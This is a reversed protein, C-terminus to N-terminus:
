AAQADLVEDVYSYRHTHGAAEQTRTARTIEHWHGNVEDTRGGTVHGEDDLEVTYTHVHDAGDEETKGTVEAPIDIEITGPRSQAMGELSVGNIEGSKVLAWAEPDPIHIGAVWADEVFDPDGARAIFSEVVVHAYEDENRDHYMDVDNTFANAMFGYAARRITEATMFDGETDLFGPVYVEVWVVQLEDDAKRIPHEFPDDSKNAEIARGQRLAAERAADREDENGPTYTYCQGQDGWKFGPRGDQQCGMVPM